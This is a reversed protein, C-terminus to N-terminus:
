ASSNKSRSLEETFEKPFQVEWVPRDSNANAMITEYILQQRRKAEDLTRSNVRGSERLTQEMDSSNPVTYNLFLYGTGMILSVYITSKIAVGIFRSM